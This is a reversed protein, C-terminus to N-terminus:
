DKQRQLSSTLVALPHILEKPIETVTSYFSYHHVFYRPKFQTKLRDLNRKNCLCFFYSGKTWVILTCTHSVRREQWVVLLEVRETVKISWQGVRWWPEWVICAWSQTTGRAKKRASCQPKCKHSHSFYWLLWVPHISIDSVVSMM